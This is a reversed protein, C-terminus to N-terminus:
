WEYEWGSEINQEDEIYVEEREERDRLRFLRGLWDDKKSKVQTRANKDEEIILEIRDAYQEVYTNNAHPDHHIVAGTYYHRLISDYDYGLGVMRIAGEQSLGVGHGYGHGRLTVTKQAENYEVSFFTSKLQMDARVRTLPVGMIRTRRHEQTFHLLSDRVANDQVNLKHKKSFYSLWKDESISKVWDTQRMGYSFTDQVSRLYPLAARWVDESNATQGGSNSHFPTEILAGASDVLTEGSSKIVGLMIDPRICRNLYAQCHVGDCFNYGDAKHKNMNRLAWTRSIIAQIRFIDSQKGYIESQVVGAIYTEFEVDGVLMLNGSRTPTVELDGEYTRQKQGEPNLCLICATDTAELRISKYRGYDDENVSVHLMKDEIRVLVSRGEGVMDELLLNGDAYLNYYGLDFSINLTQITNNTYLRVRVREASVSAASAVLMIILLLRKM